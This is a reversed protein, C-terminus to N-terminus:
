NKQVSDGKGFKLSFKMRRNMQEVGDTQYIQNFGGIHFGRVVCIKVNEIRAVTKDSM